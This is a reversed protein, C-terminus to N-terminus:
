PGIEQAKIPEKCKNPDLIRDLFDNIPQYLQTEPAQPVKAGGVSIYSKGDDSKPLYQNPFFSLIAFPLGGCEHIHIFLPSARRDWEDHPGVQDEKRKGYNHPLGFAIRRPHSNRRRSKMLDHDDKFNHESPTHGLIKGNHGWSRFRVLERGILNLMELPDDRDSSILLHRTRSCLATFPASTEHAHRKQLADMVSALDTDSQPPEWHPTGDVRLDQLALSGYGKRGKSGMSGLLGVTKLGDLLSELQGASCRGHLRVTFEFPTEISRLCPRTLEGAKTGQKCSAFAVMVGYGLYRAGEGVVSENQASIALVSGISVEAPRRVIELRMSMRSQGVTASGFIEDEQKGVEEIDGGYRSWALARWWFRLVGKFSPLRLEAKTQDAGGCFMPTVVRYTADIKTPM